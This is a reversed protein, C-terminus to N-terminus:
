LSLVTVCNASLYDISKGILFVTTAAKCACRVLEDILCYTMILCSIQVTTPYHHHKQCALDLFASILLQSVTFFASHKNITLSVTHDLELM